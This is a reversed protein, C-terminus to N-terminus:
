RDTIPGPAVIITGGGLEEITTQGGSGVANVLTWGGTGVAGGILILMVIEGWGHGKGNQQGGILKKILQVVGWILGATGLAMLLLGGTTQLYTKANELFSKVDWAADPLPVQAQILASAVSESIRNM